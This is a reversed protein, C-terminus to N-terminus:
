LVEIAHDVDNHGCSFHEFWNPVVSKVEVLTSLEEVEAIDSSTGPFRTEKIEFLLVVTLSKDFKREHFITTTHISNASYRGLWIGKVHADWEV